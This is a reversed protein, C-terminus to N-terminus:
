KVNLMEELENLRKRILSEYDEIPKGSEIARRREMKAGKSRRWDPLMVVLDSVDIMAFDLFMYQEYELGEPLRAPNLTTYGLNMLVTEANAFKKRYQSDGTIRGSIYAIM